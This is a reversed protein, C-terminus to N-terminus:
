QRYLAIRDVQCYGQLGTDERLNCHFAIWVGDNTAAIAPCAAIAHARWVVRTEKGGGNLKVTSIGDEHVIEVRQDAQYSTHLIPAKTAPIGNEDLFFANQSAVREVISGDPKITEKWESEGDWCLATVLGRDLVRPSRRYAYESHKLLM